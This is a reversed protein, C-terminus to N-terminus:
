SYRDDPQVLVEAGYYGDEIVGERNRDHRVFRRALRGSEPPVPFDDYHLLKM